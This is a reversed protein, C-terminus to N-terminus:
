KIRSIVEEIKKSIEDQLIYVKDGLGLARDKVGYSIYLKDDSNTLVFNYETGPPLIRQKVAEDKTMTKKYKLSTVLNFFNQIDQPDQMIIKTNDPYIVGEIRETHELWEKSLTLKKNSACGTLVIIILITILAM